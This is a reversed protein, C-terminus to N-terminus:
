LGDEFEPAKDGPEGNGRIPDERLPPPPPPLIPMPCTCLMLLADDADELAEDTPGMIDGIPIFAKGGGEGSM